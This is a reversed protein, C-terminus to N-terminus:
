KGPNDWMIKSVATWIGGAGIIAAAIWGAWIRISAFFWRAHHEAILGRRLQRIESKSLPESSIEDDDDDDDAM